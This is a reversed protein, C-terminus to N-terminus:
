NLLYFIDKWAENLKVSGRINTYLRGHWFPFIGKWFWVEELKFHPGTQFLQMSRFNSRDMMNYFRFNPSFYIEWQKILYAHVPWFINSQSISRGMYPYGSEPIQIIKAQLIRFGPSQFESYLEFVRSLFSIEFGLEVPFSQFGAGPIWFANFPIWFGLVTKYENVHAM